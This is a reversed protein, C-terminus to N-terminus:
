RIQLNYGYIEIKSCSEQELHINRFSKKQIHPFNENNPINKLFVWDFHKGSSCILVM